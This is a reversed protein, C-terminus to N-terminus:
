SKIQNFQVLPTGQLFKIVEDADKIGQLGLAGDNKVAIDFEMKFNGTATVDGERIKKTKETDMGIKSLFDRLATIQEPKANVALGPKRATSRINQDVNSANEGTAESHKKVQEQYVKMRSVNMTGDDNWSQEFLQKLIALSVMKDKWEVKEGKARKESVKEMNGKHAQLTMDYNMGRLSKHLGEVIVENAATSPTKINYDKDWINDQGADDVMQQRRGRYFTYDFDRTAVQKAAYLAPNSKGAEDWANSLKNRSNALSKQLSSAPDTDTEAKKLESLISNLVQLNRKDVFKEDIKQNGFLMKFSAGFDADQSLNQVEVDDIALKGSDIKKMIDSLKEMQGTLDKIGEVTTSGKLTGDKEIKNMEEKTKNIEEEKEGIQAEWDARKEPDETKEMLSKMSDRQSELNKLNESLEKHKVAGQVNRLANIESEPVAKVEKLKKEAEEQLAMQNKIVLNEEQGSLGEQQFKMAGLTQGYKEGLNGKGEKLAEGRAELELKKISSEVIEKKVTETAIQERDKKGKGKSYEETVDKQKREKGVVALREQEQVMALTYGPSKLWNKKAKEAEEFLKRAQEEKIKKDESGEEAKEAEKQAAEAEKLSREYELKPIETLVNGRYQMERTKGKGESIETQQALGGKAIMKQIGGATGSLSYQKENLEKRAEAAKEWNEARDMARGGSEVVREGVMGLLRTGLGKEEKIKKMGEEYQEQNINGAALDRKLTRIQKLGTKDVIAKAQENRWGEVKQWGLSAMGAVAKGRRQWAEGGIVPAKMALFGAAKKGGEATKGAAWRAATYGSAIMGVKKGFDVAKSMASGGVVGLQSAVKAGVLLMGIAIFFNAMKAWTTVKSIGASASNGTEGSGIGETSGAVDQNLTSPLSNYEPGSIYTNIDGGGVTAFSLWLFFIIIPGSIVNNGFQDWWQSAYKQTQPVVSLVFALPSLVILVWLVIMRALLMFLYVGMTAMMVASFVLALVSAMFVEKSQVSDNQGVSPSLKLIQDASFANILNGGATAAVGNVFTVMVVQAADIIVGCIIRSFNVLIAALVFKVLMKRWEYQEIGLITGFAILLLIAVFFMNAIDRVMVWGINVAPSDLYGNYGGLEIIFSLIFVTLKLFLTAVTMIIWSFLDLVHDMALKVEEAHAVGGYFINYVFLLFLFSFIFVGVRNIKYEPLAFGFFKIPKKVKVEKNM